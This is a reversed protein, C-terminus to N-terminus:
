EGGVELFCAKRVDVDGEAKYVPIVRAFFCTMMMDVGSSIELVIFCRSSTRRELRTPWIRVRILRSSPDGNEFGMNLRKLFEINRKM